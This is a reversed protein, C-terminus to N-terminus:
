NTMFIGSVGLGGIKMKLNTVNKAQLPIKDYKTGPM